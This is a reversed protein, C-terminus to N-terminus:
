CSGIRRELENLFSVLHGGAFKEDMLGHKKWLDIIRQEDHNPRRVGPSGPCAPTTLRVNVPPCNVLVTVCVAVSDRRRRNIQQIIWAPSAEDISREAQGIRISIM